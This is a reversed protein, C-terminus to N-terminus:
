KKGAKQGAAAPKTNAPKSAATNVKPKNGAPKAAPKTEEAATEQEPEEPQDEEPEEEDITQAKKEGAKTGKKAGPKNDKTEVAKVDKKQGKNKKASDGEGTETENAAPTAGETVVDLSTNDDLEIGFLKAVNSVETKLDQAISDPFKIGISYMVCKANLSKKGAYNLLHSCTHTVDLFVKLLLYCILNRAKPSLSLDPDVGLVVSDMEATSIPVQDRYMQDGDFQNLKVLFYQNFGTHMLMSYQVTERNVLKVGSKDKGTTKLCEKLIMTLMKQLTATMAVHGGNFKPTDISQSEFFDKLKNRVTNVNCSLGAKETIRNPSTKEVKEQKETKEVAKSM